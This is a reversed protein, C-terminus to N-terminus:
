KAELYIHDTVGKETTGEMQSKTQYVIFVITTIIFLSCDLDGIKFDLIESTSYVM